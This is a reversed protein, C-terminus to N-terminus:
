PLLGKMELGFAVNESVTMHPFLAYNQFVLNVPRRNPPVGQMPAGEILIEGSDPQEFGALLRLTTTKGSGSPGLISFFEGKRIKLSLHDVAVTAGYRKTVDRIDVSSDTVSQYFGRRSRRFAFPCLIRPNPPLSTLLVWWRTSQWRAIPRAVIGSKHLVDERHDQRATAALSQMRQGILTGFGGNGKAPLVPDDVEREAVAHIRVQALDDDQDLVFRVREV